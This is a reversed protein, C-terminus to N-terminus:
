ITECSSVGEDDNKTDLLELLDGQRPDVEETVAESEHASM